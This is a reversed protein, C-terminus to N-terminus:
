QGSLLKRKEDNADKESSYLVKESNGSGFISLYISNCNIALYSNMSNFVADYWGLLAFVYGVLGLIGLLVLQINSSDVIMTLSALFLILIISRGYIVADVYDALRNGIFLGILGAIPLLTVELGSSFPHEEKQVYIVYLFTVVDGWIFVPASTGRWVNKPTGTLLVYVILPPSNTGFMGKFIGSAGGCLVTFFYFWGTRPLTEKEDKPTAEKSPETSSAPAESDGYSQSSSIAQKLDSQQKRLFTAKIEQQAQYMSMLLFISGMIPKLTADDVSFLLMLGVYTGLTVPVSMLLAVYWDALRWLYFAQFIYIFLSVLTIDLVAEALGGNCIEPNIMQCTHWGIQFLTGAGFGTLGYTALGIAAIIFKVILTAVAM